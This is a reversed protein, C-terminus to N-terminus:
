VCRCVCECKRVCVEVVHVSWVCEVVHVDCKKNKELCHTPGPGGPGKMTNIASDSRSEREYSSPLSHLQQSFINLLRQAPRHIKLSLRAMLTHHVGEAPM